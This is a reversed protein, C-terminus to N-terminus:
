EADIVARKRYTGCYPCVRHPLIKEGCEPCTVLSPLSRKFKNFFNQARRRNRRWKSTRSKPVAM